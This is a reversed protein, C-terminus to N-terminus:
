ITFQNNYRGGFCITQNLKGFSFVEFFIGSYSIMEYPTFSLDFNIIYNINKSSFEKMLESDFILEIKEIEEVLNYKKFDKDLARKVYKLDGNISFINLIDHIKHNEIKLREQLIKTLKVKQNRYTQLIIIISM